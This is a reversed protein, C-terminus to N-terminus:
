LDSDPNERFYIRIEDLLHLWIPHKSNEAGTARNASNFETLIKWAGRPNLIIKKDQLLPNSILYNQIIHNLIIQICFKLKAALRKKIAQLAIQL